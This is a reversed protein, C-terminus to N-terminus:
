YNHNWIKAGIWIPWVIALFLYVNLGIEALLPLGFIEGIGDTICATGLIVTTAKLPRSDIIFIGVGIWWTGCLFVELSNWMGKSVFDNALLFNAKHIAKLEAPALQYSEMLSPWVNALAAAGIAGIMVYSFGTSTLVSAWPTKEQLRRHAYYVMPLLLLYYGFMDLFMFWRIHIPSAEPMELLLVPNAFAEFNFQTAILGVILCGLALIGSLITLTAIVKQDNKSFSIM